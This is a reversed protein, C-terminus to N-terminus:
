EKRGWIYSSEFFIYTAFIRPESCEEPNGPSLVNLFVNLLLHFIVVVTVVMFSSFFYDIM